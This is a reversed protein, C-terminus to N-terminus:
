RVTIAVLVRGSAADVFVVLERHLNAESAPGGFPALNLGGLQIAYVPVSQIPPDQDPMTLRGEYVIPQAVKGYTAVAVEMARSGGVPGPVATEMTQGLALGTLVMGHPALAATLAEFQSPSATVFGSPRAFTIALIAVAAGLGVILTKQRKL